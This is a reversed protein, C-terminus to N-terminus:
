AFETLYMFTWDLFMDINIYIDIINYSDHTHLALFYKGIITNCLLAVQRTIEM